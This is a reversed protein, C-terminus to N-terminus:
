GKKAKTTKKKTPENQLSPDLERAEAVLNDAEALLRQADARMREAQQLRQAALDSDTLVESSTQLSDQGNIDSSTTKIVAPKRKSETVTTKPKNQKIDELKNKAEEGRSMDNLIKNLEDLMVSSQANPTIRVQNTQVKHIWGNRHLAELCNKGDKMLTRFLVDSFSMAAQGQESELTRMIEDHYASPLVEPYTVLCMHPEEPVERFLLVVKKNSATHVGIHKLM